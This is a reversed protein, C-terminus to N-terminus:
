KSRADFLSVISEPSGLINHQTHHSAGVVLSLRTFTAQPSLEKILPQREHAANYSNNEIMSVVHDPNVYINRLSYTSVVNKIEMDYHQPEKVIEILKIM